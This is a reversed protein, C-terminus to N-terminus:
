AGYHTRVYHEVIRQFEEAITKLPEEIRRDALVRCPKGITAETEDNGQKPKEQQAWLPVVSLAFAGFVAVCRYTLSKM